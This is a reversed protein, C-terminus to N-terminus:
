VVFSRFNRRDGSAVFSAANEAIQDPQNSSAAAATM